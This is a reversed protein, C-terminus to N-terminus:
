RFRYVGFVRGNCNGNRCKKCRITRGNQKHIVKIRIDKGAYADAIKGSNDTSGDDVLILEFNTFTQNLISDICKPLYDEVNYIPVIVSIKPKM